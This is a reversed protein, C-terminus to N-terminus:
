KTKKNEKKYSECKNCYDVCVDLCNKRCIPDKYSDHKKFWELREQRMNPGVEGIPECGERMAIVCPFHWLKKDNGAVVSDDKVLHCKHCDGEQIGRVNRGHNLNNIRYKLIPHSDLIKSDLGELGKILQNYQAASIIRIDAVGLNHAFEIIDKTQHVNNETLVVGVTVYTLKAIKPINEIVKEWQNGEVGTMANGFSSCCSDLSISFDNVGEEILKEYLDFTSSGNSSIAIRQVNGKKCIRVLDVLKPYLTPEGGSFRVNRLGDTIWYNLTNVALDFSIDKSCDRSMAKHGRCYPCKFNCRPTLLMETRMMPSKASLNKAREDSLTYFGIEELKM